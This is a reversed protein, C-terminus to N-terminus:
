QSSSVLLHWLYLTLQSKPAQMHYINKLGRPCTAKNGTGCFMSLAKPLILGGIPVPVPSSLGQAPLIHQDCSISGQLLAVHLLWELHSEPHIRTKYQLQIAAIYESASKRTPKGLTQVPCHSTVLDFLSHCHDRVRYNLCINLKRLQSRDIKECFVNGYNEQLKWVPFISNNVKPVGCPPPTWPEGSIKVKKLPPPPPQCNSPPKPTLPKFLWSQIATPLDIHFTGDVIDHLIINFGL